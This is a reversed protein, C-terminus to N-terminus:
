LSQDPSLVKTKVRAKCQILKAQGRKVTPSFVLMLGMWLVRFLRRSRKLFKKKDMSMPSYAIMNLSNSKRKIIKSM